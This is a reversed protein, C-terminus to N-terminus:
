QPSAVAVLESDRKRRGSFGGVNRTVVIKDVILDGFLDRFETCDKYTLVILNEKSLKEVVSKLRKLDNKCFLASGYENFVRSDNTFYPPDIYICSDVPNSQDLFDEFDLCNFTAKQSISAFFNFRDWDLKSKSESHQGFPTNFDGKRNTRYIGNFCYHNLYLFYAAKKISSQQKNFESRIRYYSEKEPSLNDYITWLAQPSARLQKYFDILNRNNDNLLASTPRQSFFFSASGCFPEIYLKEFDLYPAIFSESQSKSGAWRLLKGRASTNKESKM